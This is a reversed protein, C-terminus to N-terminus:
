YADQMADDGDGDRTKADILLQGFLCQANM